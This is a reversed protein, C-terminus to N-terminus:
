PRAAHDIATRLRPLNSTWNAEHEVTSRAHVALTSLDDGCARRLCAALAAVDGVPFTLGSEENTVWGRNGATASAVVPAGCAMAQLLTM